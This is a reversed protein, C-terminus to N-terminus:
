QYISKNEYDNKFATTVSTQKCQEPSLLEVNVYTEHISFGDKYSIGQAHSQKNWFSLWLISYEITKRSNIKGIVKVAFFSPGSNM